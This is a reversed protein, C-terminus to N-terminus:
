TKFVKISDASVRSINKSNSSGSSAVRYTSIIAKAARATNKHHVKWQLNQPFLVFPGGTLCLWSVQSDVVTVHASLM